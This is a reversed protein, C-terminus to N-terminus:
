RRVQRLRHHLVPGRARGPPHRGRGGEGPHVDPPRRGGRPGPGARRRVVAAPQGPHARRGGRRGRPHPLSAAALVLHGGRGHHDRRRRAADAPPRHRHRAGAAAPLGRRLHRDHDVAHRGPRPRAARRARNRQFVTTSVVDAVLSGAAIIAMAFLAPPLSTSFGLIVFGGALIFAGFLMAPALSKRALIAGSGIAGLVGGVGVAANLYGTGAEGANLQDVAIIVTLVSLGGFLFGATTDLALMGILPRRIAMIRARAGPDDADPAATAAVADPAAAARTADDTLADADAAAREAEDAPVSPNFGGAPKGPLGPPLTALTISVVAFTVANIAFAITLDAAAIIIGALAPGIIFSLEGLTAFLSNAPGLEREDRVLSPLYAGIAPRFFCSFCTALIALAVVALLPGDNAVIITLIVMILGRAVDTVLLVLRRDFRDIIIGAPVSLIVYPIIRAAGVIGLVLPDQSENYVIVLLAVLYLWDGIGSIFEGVFLRVLSSNGMVGRYANM